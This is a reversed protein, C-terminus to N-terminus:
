DRAAARILLFYINYLKAESSIITEKNSFSKIM